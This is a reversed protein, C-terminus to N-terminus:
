TRAIVQGKRGKYGMEARTNNWATPVTTTAPTSPSPCEGVSNAVKVNVNTKLKVNLDVWVAQKVMALRQVEGTGEVFSHYQGKNRQAFHTYIEMLVRSLEAIFVAINRSMLAFM